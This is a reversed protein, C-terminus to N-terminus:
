KKIGDLILDILEGKSFGDFKLSHQEPEYKGKLKYAKDLAKDRAMNDPVIYYAKKSQFQPAVQKNEVIKQVKIGYREVIEIIEENTFKTPFDFKGVGKANLLGKHTKALVDDGLYEAMLSEWSATDTLHTSSKAYSESYGAKLMADKMTM